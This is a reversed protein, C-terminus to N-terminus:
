THSSRSINLVIGLGALTVLLASSGYSFLPLPIGTLPLLGIIAAINIIANIAFSGILGLALMRGFADPARLGIRIGRLIVAIFLAIVGTVRVFGLEEAMIAFISDNIAEPLYFFKQRSRGYGYGWWGGTGIALIAQNIQYAIGQPDFSRDLFATIRRMRYPEFKILALVIVLGAGTISAFYSWRIGGIFFMLMAAGVISLTTGLDPQWMILTAILGTLLLAPLVSNQFSRERGRKAIWSALYV